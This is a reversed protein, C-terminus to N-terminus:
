GGVELTAGYALDGFYARTTKLADALADVSSSPLAALQSREIGAVIDVDVNAARALEEQSM